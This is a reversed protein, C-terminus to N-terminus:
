AVPRPRFPHLCGLALNVHVNRLDSSSGRLEDAAHEGVTPRDDARPWQFRQDDATVHTPQGIAIDLAQHLFSSQALYGLACGTADATLQTRAVFREAGSTEGLHLQEGQEEIGNIQRRSRAALLLAYQHGPSVGGLALPHQHGHSKALALSM